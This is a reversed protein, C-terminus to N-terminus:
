TGEIGVDVPEESFVDVRRMRRLRRRAAIARTLVRREPVVSAFIPEPAPRTMLPTNPTKTIASRTASPAPAGSSPSTSIPAAEMAMTAAAGVASAAAPSRRASSRSVPMSARAAVRPMGPRLRSTTRTTAAIVCIPRDIPRGRTPRASKGTTSAPETGIASRRLASARPSSENEAITPM